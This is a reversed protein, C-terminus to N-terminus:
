EGPPYSYGWDVQPNTQKLFPDYEPEGVYLRLFVITYCNKPSHLCVDLDYTSNFMALENPFGQWPHNSSMSQTHSAIFFAQMNHCCYVHHSQSVLNGKPTMYLTYYSLALSSGPTNQEPATSFPNPQDPRDPVIKYDPLSTLPRGMADSTDYTQYSFYRIKKPFIGQIKIVTDNKIRDLVM